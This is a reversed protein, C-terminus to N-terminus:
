FQFGLNLNVTKTVCPGLTVDKASYVDFCASRVTSKTPLLNHSSFRKFKVKM